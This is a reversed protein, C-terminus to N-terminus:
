AARTRLERTSMRETFERTRLGDAASEFLDAQEVDAHARAVLALAQDLEVESLSSVDLGKAAESIRKARLRRDLATMDFKFALKFRDVPIPKSVPHPLPKYSSPTLGLANMVLRLAEPFSCGRVKMVM